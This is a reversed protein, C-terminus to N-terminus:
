LIKYLNRLRYTIDIIVSDTHYTDQKEILRPYCHSFIYNVVSKDFRRAYDWNLEFTDACKFLDLKNEKRLYERLERYLPYLIEYRLHDFVLNYVSGVGRFSIYCKKNSKVLCTRTDLFFHVPNPGVVYGDEIYDARGGDWQKSLTPDFHLIEKFLRYSAHFKNDGGGHLRVTELLSLMTSLVQEFSENEKM